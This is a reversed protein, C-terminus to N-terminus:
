GAAAPASTKCTILWADYVPHEIPNLGPSSAFMWGRFVQRSPKKETQIKPESRVEVYAAADRMPEDAATTECSRVTFVLGKYRVPRGVKAEFRITEATIKDLAQLIAAQHRPRGAPTTPKAAEPSAEAKEADEEDKAEAEPEPDLPPLPEAPPVVSPSVEGPAPPPEETAPQETEVPPPLAPQTAPPASQAQVLGATLVAAFAAGCVVTLLRDRTM